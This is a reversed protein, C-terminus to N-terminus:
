AGLVALKHLTRGYELDLAIDTILEEALHGKRSAIVMAPFRLALREMVDRMSHVSPFPGFEDFPTASAKAADGLTYYHVKGGFHRWVSNPANM